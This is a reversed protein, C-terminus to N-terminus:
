NRHRTQEAQVLAAQLRLKAKVAVIVPHNRMIVYILLHVPKGTTPTQGSTLLLANESFLAAQHYRLM